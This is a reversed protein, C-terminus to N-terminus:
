LNGENKKAKDTHPLGQIGQKVAGAWATKVQAYTKHFGEKLEYPAMAACVRAADVVYPAVRSNVVSQPAHGPVAFAMMAMVLAVSILVGRIAGFVAGLLHDVISLGTLKLFKGIIFSVLSGLMLVAVFVLIFGLFNAIGRSSVYPLLYGGVLSYFWSGIVLALVVAVLGVIERTLGNRFSSFISAALIILLVIDLWNM